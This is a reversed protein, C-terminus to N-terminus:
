RECRAIVAARKEGGVPFADEPATEIRIPDFRVNVRHLQVTRLNAPEGIKAARGPRRKVMGGAFVDDERGVLQTKGVEFQEDDIGRARALRRAHCEAVAEVAQRRERRVAQFEAPRRVARRASFGLQERRIPLM